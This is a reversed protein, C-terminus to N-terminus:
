CDMSKLAGQSDCCISIYKESKVNTQIEYVRALAAYM